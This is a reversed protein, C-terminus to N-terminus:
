KAAELSRAESTSELSPWKAPLLASAYSVSDDSGGTGAESKGGPQFGVRCGDASGSAARLYLLHLM